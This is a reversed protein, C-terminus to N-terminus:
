SKKRRRRRLGLLKQVDSSTTEMLDAIEVV